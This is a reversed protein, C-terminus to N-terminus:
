ADGRKMSLLHREGPTVSTMVGDFQYEGEAVGISPDGNRFRDPFIQYFVAGPVWQPNRFASIIM